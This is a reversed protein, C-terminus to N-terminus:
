DFFEVGPSVVDEAAEAVADIGVFLCVDQGGGDDFIKVILVVALFYNGDTAASKVSEADGLLTAIDVSKPLILVPFKSKRIPQIVFRRLILHNQLRLMYFQQMQPSHLQTSTVIERHSHEVRTVQIHPSPTSASIVLILQNLSNVPM